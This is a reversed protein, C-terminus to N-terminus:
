PEVRWKNSGVSVDVTSQYNQGGATVFYKIRATGRNISIINGEVWKPSSETGVSVLVADGIKCKNKLMLQQFEEEMPAESSSSSMPNEVEGEESGSGLAELSTVSSKPSDVGSIQGYQIIDASITCQLDIREIRPLNSHRGGTGTETTIIDVTMNAYAQNDQLPFSSMLDKKADAVLGDRVAGGGGVTYSTRSTGTVGYKIYSFDEDCRMTDTGHHTYTHTSKQYTCSVMIVLM